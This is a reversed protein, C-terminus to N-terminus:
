IAARKEEKTANKAVVEEFFDEVKCDLVQAVVPLQEAKFAYTGKEYHMYTSANKFGLEEAMQQLSIKKEARKRAIVSPKFKRM